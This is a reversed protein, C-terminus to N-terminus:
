RIRWKKEHEAMNRVEEVLLKLREEPTLQLLRRIVTRDVGAGPKVDVPPTSM